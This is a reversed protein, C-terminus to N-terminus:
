EYAIVAPVGPMIELISNVAVVGFSRTIVTAGSAKPVAVISTLADSPVFVAAFAKSKVMLSFGLM